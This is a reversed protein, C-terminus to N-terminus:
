TFNVPKDFTEDIIYQIHNKFELPGFLVLLKKIWNLKLREKDDNMKIPPCFLKKQFSNEISRKSIWIVTVNYSGLFLSFHRAAIIPKWKMEIAFSRVPVLEAFKEGHQVNWVLIYRHVHESLAVFDSVNQTTIDLWAWMIQETDTIVFPITRTEDLADIILVALRVLLNAVVRHM